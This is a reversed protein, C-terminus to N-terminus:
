MALRADMNARGISSGGRTGYAVIVELGVGLPGVHLTKSGLKISISGSSLLCIDYFPVKVNSSM